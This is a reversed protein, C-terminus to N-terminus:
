FKYLFNHVWAFDHQATSSLDEDRDDIVYKNRGFWVAWLSGFDERVLKYLSYQLCSSFDLESVDSWLEYFPSSLWFDKAKPCLFLAHIVNGVEKKFALISYGYQSWTFPSKFLSFAYEYM